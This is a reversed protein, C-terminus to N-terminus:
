CSSTSKLKALVDEKMKVLIKLYGPPILSVIKDIEDKSKEPRHFEGEQHKLICKELDENIHFGLFRVAPRLEQMINVKMEEFNILCFKAKIQLLKEFWAKWSPMTSKLEQVFVGNSFYKDSIKQELFPIGKQLHNSPSM